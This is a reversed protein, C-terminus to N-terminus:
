LRAATGEILATGRMTMLESTTIGSDERSLLTLCQEGGREGLPVIMRGGQALQDLLAPPVQPVAATM